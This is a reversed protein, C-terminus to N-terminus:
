RWIETFRQKIIESDLEPYIPLTLIENVIKETISLREASIKIKQKYGPHM